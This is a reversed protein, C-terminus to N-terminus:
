ELLRILNSVLIYHSYIATMQSFGGAICGGLVALDPGEVLSKVPIM